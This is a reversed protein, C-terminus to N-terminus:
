IKIGAREFALPELERMKKLTNPKFYKNLQLETFREATLGGDNLLKARSSGIISKQFDLSQTKLWGYYTQDAPVKGVRGTDPDREARTAGEDLFDFRSDLVAVTTTRCRPHFPPRPGKDLPFKQGDLGRCIVTTRSDLTAVIQVMKIIDSNAAWTAQRSQNAAHQLSTRVISEIIPEASKKTILEISEILAANTLGQAYGSRIAGVTSDIHSQTWDKIYADLLKGGDAGTVSLPNFNVATVIQGDSPLVFNVKPAVNELSRLEFGAEYQALEQIQDNLLSIVDEDYQKELLKKYAALQKEFQIRTKKALDDKSLQWLLDDNINSLIDTYNNVYQTKLGELHAAHRTAQEILQEPTTPM